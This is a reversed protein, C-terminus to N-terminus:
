DLAVLAKVIDEASMAIPSTTLAGLVARLADHRTERDESRMASEILSAINSTLKKNAKNLASTDNILRDSLSELSEAHYHVDRSKFVPEYKVHEGDDKGKSVMTDLLRGEYSGNSKKEFFFLGDKPADNNIKKVSIPSKEFELPRLAGKADLRFSVVAFAIGNKISFIAM